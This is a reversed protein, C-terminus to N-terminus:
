NNLLETDRSHTMDKLVENLFRENELNRKMIDLASQSARVKGQLGYKQARLDNVENMLKDRDIQLDRVELETNLFL